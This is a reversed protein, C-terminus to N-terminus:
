WILEAPIKGGNEAIRRLVAKHLWANMKFNDPDNMRETLRGLEEGTVHSSQSQQQDEPAQAHGRDFKEL